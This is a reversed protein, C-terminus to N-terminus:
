PPAKWEYAKPPRCGIASPPRHPSLSRPRNKGSGVSKHLTPTKSPKHRRGRTRIHWSACKDVRDRWWDLDANSAELPRSASSTAITSVDQPRDEFSRPRVAVERDITGCRVPPRSVVLTRPRAGDEDPRTRRGRNEGRGAPGKEGSGVWCRPGRATGPRPTRAEGTSSTERQRQNGRRADTRNRPIDSPRKHFRASAM